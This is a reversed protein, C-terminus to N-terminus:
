RAHCLQCALWWLLSTQDAQRWLLAVLGGGMVVSAGMSGGLVRAHLRGREAQLEADLEAAPPSLSPPTSM